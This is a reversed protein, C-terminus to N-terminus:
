RVESCNKAGPELEELNSVFQSLFKSEQYGPVTPQFSLKPFKDLVKINFAFGAMDVAFKRAENAWAIWGVVQLDFESM